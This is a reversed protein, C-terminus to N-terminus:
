FVFDLTISLLAYSGGPRFGPQRNVLTGPSDDDLDVYDLQAKLAMQSAFDWRTGVAVSRQAPLSGLLGNLGANLGAAMADLPPPFAEPTLGAHSTPGDDRLRAITVFPTFTGIRRGASIYAGQSDGVFTRSEFIALESILFWSGPDYEAGVSAFEVTKSDFDFRNAIQEGEPGFQRFADFLADAGKVTARARMYGLNLRLAGRELSGSVAVMDRIQSEVDGPSEIDTQGLNLRLTHMTVGARFSYGVDLGDSNTAPQLRYVEQPVRVWPLAYGLKRYESVLVGPLVTRGVRLYLDPTAHYKLNAWELTPSYTDDYRQEVIVQVVGSLAPSFSASLQAGLRSDVRPSWEDSYGAGEPRFVDAVFDANDENSRVVGLTGFGNFSLDPYGGDHAVVTGTHLIALLAIAAWPQGRKVALPASTNQM